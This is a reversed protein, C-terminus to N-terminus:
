VAAKNLVIDWEQGVEDWLAIYNLPVEPMPVPAVWVGNVEDLNWSAFPQVEVFVDVSPLYKGGISAYQRRFSNNYSTQIWNTDDGFLTKCFVIGVAESEIDNDDLIDENNVVIVTTVFNNEDLQAFHAM